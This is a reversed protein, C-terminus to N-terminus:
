AAEEERGGLARRSGSAELVAMLDKKHVGRRNIRDGGEATMAIQRTELGLAKLASGLVESTFGDYRDPWLERLKLCIDENWLREATAFVVAVDDLLSTVPVVEPAEGLAHGSLRGAAERAARARVVVAECAPGDMYFTRTIQPDEAEGALYGVGRDKRSFLTARIGSKYASTGLVMDNAPQSMVKLCLRLVVNASIGTPLSKADPRQTAVLVIIGLAPGRKVLDTVIEEIEAGYTPHEFWKQCEDVAVVIPHLRLSRMGALQPTVKNEPCVDRPLERIVKTRRRLEAQLEHLDAVAYAIDDEEEGARHRHAVPELPDLDGSGKLDYVHLEAREDLAAGVLILRLAFTKGVRPIAGIAMSAFMLTLNVPRGRHDTGFPFEGFLDVTGRKALPWDPQKAKRLDQDGVWLVLRGEHVDHVPEPWVCGLPRRLGSALKDRREVVDTATVGYPLDIEARYGPGDRTIEAPFNVTTGGKGTKIEPIGISCLARLVVSSTLKPPAGDTVVARDMLPKDPRSGVKALAVVGATVVLVLVWAPAVTVALAVGTVGGGVGLVACAGRKRLRADRSGTLSLYERTAGRRVADARLSAADHDFVWGVTRRTGVGAGVAARVVVRGAYKPTRTVHYGALYAARDVYVRAVSQFDELSRLCAPVIPRRDATQARLITGYVVKPPVELDDRDVPVPEGPEDDPVAVDGVSGGTVETRGGTVEVPQPQVADAHGEHGDMNTGGSEIDHFGLPPSPEQWDAAARCSEPDRSEQSEQPDTM